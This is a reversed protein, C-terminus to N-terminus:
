SFIFKIRNIKLIKKQFVWNEVHNHNFNKFKELSKTSFVISLRRFPPGANFFGM